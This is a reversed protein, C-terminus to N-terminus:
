RERKRNNTITKTTWRIRQCHCCRRHHHRHSTMHQWLILHVFFVIVFLRFLSLYHETVCVCSIRLLFPQLFFYGCMINILITSMLTIAHSIFIPYNHTSVSLNFINCFRLILFICGTTNHISPHYLHGRRPFTRSPFTQPHPDVVCSCCDMGGRDVPRVLLIFVVKM